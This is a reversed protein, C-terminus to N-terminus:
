NSKSLVDGWFRFDQGSFTVYFGAQRQNHHREPGSNLVIAACSRKPDHGDCPSTGNKEQVSLAM